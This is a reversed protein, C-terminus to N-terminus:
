IMQNLNALVKAALDADGEVTVAVEDPTRRGTALVIFTESGMSIRATPEAPAGDLRQARGDVVQLAVSREVPGTLEVVLSQGETAGARKGFTAGLTRWMRDITHEAAPGTLHGPRGLARRIDQEHVWNDLVRIQLFDLVTGPGIPTWSETAFDDDSMSRLRELRGATLEDFEALVEAGSLSRRVDVEHENAAGIPNRVHGAEPAEHETPPLGQLMRETGILHSVNDQVTWGPCETPTKWQEETLDACLDHISRWTADLKAITTDSETSM